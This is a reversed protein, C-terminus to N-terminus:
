EGGILEKEASDSCSRIEDSASTEIPEDSLFLNKQRKVIHEMMTRYMTAAKHDSTEICFKRCYAGPELLMDSSISEQTDIYSHYAHDKVEAWEGHTEPGSIYSATHTFRMELVTIGPMGPLYAVDGLRVAEGDDYTIPIVDKREKPIKTPM